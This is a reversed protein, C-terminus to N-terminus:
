KSYTSKSRLPFYGRSHKDTPKVYQNDGKYGPFQAKYSSLQPCPGNSHLLDEPHPREVDDGKSGRFGNGYTSSLDLHPGKLKDYEKDHNVVNPIAAQEYFSKQYVTNKSMDPKIVHMKCLHRGCQCDACVCKDTHHHSFNTNSLKSATKNFIDDKAICDSHNHFNRQTKSMRSTDISANLQSLDLQAGPRGKLVTQFGPKQSSKSYHKQSGPRMQDQIALNINIFKNSFHLMSCCKYVIGIAYLFIFDSLLIKNWWRSGM